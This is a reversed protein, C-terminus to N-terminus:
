SMRAKASEVIKRDYCEAQEPTLLAYQECTLKAYGVYVEREVESLREFEQLSLDGTEFPDCQMLSREHVGDKLGGTAGMVNVATRSHLYDQGEFDWPM